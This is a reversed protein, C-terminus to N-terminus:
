YGLPQLQLAQPPVSTRHRLRNRVLGVRDALLVYLSHWGLPQARPDPPRVSASMQHRTHKGCHQPRCVDNTVREGAGLFHNSFGFGAFKLNTCFSGRSEFGWAGQKKRSEDKRKDKKKKDQSSFLEVFGSSSIRFGLSEFRFGTATRLVGWFSQSTEPGFCFLGTQDSMMRLSSRRKKRTKGPKLTPFRIM